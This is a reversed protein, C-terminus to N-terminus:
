GPWIDRLVDYESEDEPEGVPNEIGARWGAGQVIVELPNDEEDPPVPTSAVSSRIDIWADLVKGNDKWSGKIESPFKYSKKDFVFQEPRATQLGATVLQDLIDECEESDKGWIRARYSAKRYGIAPVTSTEGVPVGEADMKELITGGEHLWVIRPHWSHEADKLNGFEHPVVDPDWGSTKRVATLANMLENVKLQSSSYDTM